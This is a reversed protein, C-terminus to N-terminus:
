RKIPSGRELFCFAHSFGFSLSPSVRKQDSKLIQSLTELEVRKIKKLIEIDHSSGTDLEGFVGHGNKMVTHMIIRYSVRNEHNLPIFMRFLRMSLAEPTDILEYSGENENSELDFPDQGAKLKRFGYPQPLCQFFEQLRSSKISEGKSDVTFKSWVTQLGDSLLEFKSRVNMENFYNEEFEQVVVLMFLNIVIFTTLMIYSFFFAVTSLANNYEKYVFMFMPWDEGTSARFLLVLANFFNNFNYYENKYDEDEFDSYKFLFVGLVSYIFYVLFLLVLVNLLNPLANILTNLIKKIQDMKKSKMLKFLRTVRLVRFVRLLQPGVRVFSTMNSGMLDVLIDVISALVICFDFVNWPNMFYQYLGLGVLKLLAELIFVSTFFLNIKLLVEAYAPIEGDYVLGMTIINLIICSMIFVDFGGWNALWFVKKLFWNKPPILMRFSPKARKILKQMTVWDIQSETWNKFKKNKEILQEETYQMFIVGVFLNVLFFSGIFIFSLYFVGAIKNKNLGPGDSNGNSDLSTYLLSPWGEMTSLVFLTILSNVINDFNWYHNHWEGSPCDKIGVGYNTEFSCYGMKEGLISIGLIGFILWIFLIVLIVNLIATFSNILSNVIIKMNKNHSIFRLPKLTRLMRLIRIFGIEVNTFTMDIISSIVLFFDLASWSDRLYSGECGIFGYKIIKMLAELAFLFNFVYESATFVSELKNMKADPNNDDTFTQLVLLMSNAIILVIVLRDFFRHSVMTAVAVRFKSEKSIFYLSQQCQADFFPDGNTKKPKEFGLFKMLKQQDSMGPTIGADGTDLKEEEEEKEEEEMQSQINLNNLAEIKREREKVMRAKEEIAEELAKLEYNEDNLELLAQHVDDTTFGDLLIALFM